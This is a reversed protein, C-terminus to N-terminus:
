VAASVPAPTARALGPAAYLERDLYAQAIDQGYAVTRGIADLAQTVAAASAPSMTRDGVAPLLREELAHGSALLAEGVDLLENMEAPDGSRLVAELHEMAQRHFTRLERLPGGDPRLDALRPGVEGITVAHDAIRELSRGVTYARLAPVTAGEGGSRRLVVTRELYWAERDIEDDLRSWRGDDGLPLADWSALARRHFKLVRQGLRRLGVDLPEPRGVDCDALEVVTRSQRVVAPQRTRRCFERVVGLTSPLLAPREEIRFARAGALYASLLHRFLHEPPDESAVVMRALSTSGSAADARDPVPSADAPARVRSRSKSPAPLEPATPRGPDRNSM